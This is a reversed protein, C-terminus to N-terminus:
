VLPIETFTADVPGMALDIATAEAFNALMISRARAIATDMSGSYGAPVKVKVDVMVENVCSVACSSEDVPLPVAFSLVTAILPNTKTGETRSGIFFRDKDSTIYTTSNPTAKTKFLAM